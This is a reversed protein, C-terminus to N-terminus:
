DRKCPVASRCEIKICTLTITTLTKTTDVIAEPICEKNIHCKMVAQSYAMNAEQLLLYVSALMYEKLLKEGKDIQAISFNKKKEAKLKHM